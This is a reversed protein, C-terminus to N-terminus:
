SFTYTKTAPTGAVGNKTPTVALAWTGKALKVTCRWRAKGKITVAKCTGTKTKSGNRATLTYTVTDGPAASAKDATKTISM